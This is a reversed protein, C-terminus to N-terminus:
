LGPTFGETKANWDSPFHPGEDGDWGGAMMAVALLLSSSAPFYPTPVRTGGVPNGVDDFQFVPDLLYNVAQQSDGLRTATLALMPFDWGYSNTLNWVQNIKMMTANVVGVDVGATPPLLGYVAIQSPHDSIYEYTTWMDPLDACIAYAGDTIPLPALNEQVRVWGSPVPQGQRRKWASAIQLGFRWYALEFTPNYTSNPNTNESSPYMPPGLDYVQTSSNWWAYSAMFEALETLVTDWKELTRPTPFARYELEAFYMAHPQQWILLANIEGPASRGSPDSMKGLRAGRYGQKQARELSSPLFRTYVGLSRDLLEWKGWRAWHGLHWFVMELHFKGYWGNNQLGAEQPPDRGACNIALLYQSLIIRRQLEEADSSRTATLDVFSGSEWYKAWWTASEAKVKDFARVKANNEPTYASTFSFTTKGSPNLDYRHTRNIPGSINGKPLWSISNYYTTGGLTHQIVAKQHGNVFLETTHNSVANWDGVFPAQFSAAGTTLPYDFFVSLSGNQLLQSDIRVAVEDSSPSGATQVVVQKGGLVFESTLLGTYLDLTQSMNSLDALSINKGNYLLGIRGLNVRHPNARLWTSIAAEATNPMDYNVLRGHTWWDLGTFDSPDDQGPETPLSDNAWCWSSLINYPLITQLGTIDAGFAFNGNGVQIPTTSSLNTRVPNFRRVVQRRNIRSGNGGVALTLFILIITMLLSSLVM